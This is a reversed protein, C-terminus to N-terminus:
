LRVTLCIRLRQIVVLALKDVEKHLYINHTGLEFSHERCISRYLFDSCIPYVDDLLNKASRYGQYASVYKVM